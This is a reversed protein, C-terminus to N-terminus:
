KNTSFLNEFFFDGGYVVELTDSDYSNLGILKSHSFVIGFTWITSHIVYCNM